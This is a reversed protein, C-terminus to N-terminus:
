FLPASLYLTNLLKDNELMSATKVEIGYYIFKNKTEEDMTSVYIVNIYIRRLYLLLVETPMNMKKLAITEVGIVKSAELDFIVLIKNEGHLNTLKDKSVLIAKREIM